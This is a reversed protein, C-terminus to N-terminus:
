HDPLIHSTAIAVDDPFTGSRLRVLESLKNAILGPRIKRVQDDITELSTYKWLGDTAAVITTDFLTSTFPRSIAAGSGLFPKRQQGRTLEVRDNSSFAWVMSDGVSAGFIQKPEVVVVLGTTEGCDSANVLDRDIRHLLQECAEATTLSAGSERVIRMFLEAAQAGGSIGGAGDAVALLLRNDFWFVEARDQLEPNGAAIFISTEAHMLTGPIFAAGYSQTFGARNLRPRCVPSMATGEMCEKHNIRCRQNPVQVAAM